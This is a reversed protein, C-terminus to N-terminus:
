LSELDEPRDIDGPSGLDDCPILRVPREHLGEDPIEAWDERGIVLSPESRRRLVRRRSKRTRWDDLVREVAQPSLNPGDALVVVAAEVDGGLAALGCRLSAGPGREWERCPVVRAAPHDLLVVLEHAGEVVVVHDVSTRGLQELVRPLLLQQQPSGFRSAEGAALVIAAIKGMLDPHGHRELRRGAARRADGVGLADIREVTDMGETVEGVIAYEPPLGADAGTVVFFQSGATRPAEAGSKAMAVVGRTYAADSPPVDVTSYGPGSGSQTPDGGQIVFGPVVRHFITDDFYGEEALAVLSPATNPALEPDLTVTFPGCSTDFTLAYTKRRRAVDDASRELWSREGGARRREECEASAETTTDTAGDGGGCGAAFVLMALAILVGRM